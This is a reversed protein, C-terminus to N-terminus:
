IVKLIVLLQNALRIKHNHGLNFSWRTYDRTLDKVAQIQEDSPSVKGDPDAGPFGAIINSLRDQFGTGENYYQAVESDWSANKSMQINISDMSTDYLIMSDAPLRGREKYGGYRKELIAKRDELVSNDTITNVDGILNVVSLSIAKSSRDELEKKREPYNKIMDALIRQWAPEPRRRRTQINDILNEAILWKDIKKAM